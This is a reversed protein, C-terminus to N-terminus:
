GENIRGREGPRFSPTLRDLVGKSELRALMTSVSGKSSIGLGVSIERFTPPRGAKRRFNDLFELFQWQRETLESM